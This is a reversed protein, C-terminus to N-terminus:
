DWGIQSQTWDTKMEIWDDDTIPGQDAEAFDKNMPMGCSHCKGQNDEHHIGSHHKMCLDDM